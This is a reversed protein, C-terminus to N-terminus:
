GPQIVRRVDPTNLFSERLDNPTHALIYELDTRAQTRLIHAKAPDRSSQIEALAGLIRWRTWRSGSHDAERRAEQLSTVAKDLDGQRQLGLGKLYLIDALHRRMRYRRLFSISRDCGQIARAYDGRALCVEAEAGHIATDFLSSPDGGAMRTLAEDVIPQASAPDDNLVYLHALTAATYIHIVQAFREGELHALKALEMGRAPQGLDGYLSALDARTFSLPAQFGHEALRIANEMTAIAQDIQGIERYAEGLWSGIFSEGWTNGIRRSIELPEPSGEIALAYEALLIHQMIAYGWNDVLMPLNNMARWMERAELNYQKGLEPNGKWVYLLSIDNLLYALQEKLNLKRAIAIGQEGYGLALDYHLDLRSNALLLNWLIKAESAEDGMARALALAQESLERSRAQDFHRSPISYITTRAILSALAMARDGRERAASEMEGYNDLAAEFQDSLEFVRGLKLYLDQLSPRRDHSPEVRRAIQIAQRYYEIAEANAYRHAAGEAARAAYDFTKLEDGAEAYHHALVAAFEDSSSAAYMTEYAQAVRRHLERRTKMLLSQHAAEQTLAHKFMYEIEELLPRVLQANELETLTTGLEIKQDNM